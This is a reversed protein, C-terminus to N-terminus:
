NSFKCLPFTINITLCKLYLCLMFGKEHLIGNQLLIIMIIFFTKGHKQRWNSKPKPAQDATAKRAGPRNYKAADTGLTRMKTSDFVKRKKSSKKCISQHKALRDSTFSRGCNHCPVLTLANPAQELPPSISGASGSGFHLSSPSPTRHHPMPQLRAPPRTSSLPPTSRNSSKIFTKDKRLKHINHNHDGCQGLPSRRGYQGDPNAHQGGTTSLRSLQNSRATFPIGMSFGIFASVANSM